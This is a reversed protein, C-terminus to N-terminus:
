DVVTNFGNTLKMWDKISLKEVCIEIAKMIQVNALDM